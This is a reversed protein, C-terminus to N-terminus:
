CPKKERVRGLWALGGGLCMLLGGLWIWRILPKDYLRVQWTDASVAEGLAIYVDRFPTVDVAADTMPIQGVDYVRKEPYIRSISQGKQIMMTARVGHYNPGHLDALQELRVTYGSFEVAKGVSLLSDAQVGFGSSVAIGLMSVGIGIHAASMGWSAFSVNRLGSQKIKRWFRQLTAVIIWIALAIATWVMGQHSVFIMGLIGLLVSVLGAKWVQLWLTKADVKGWPMYMVLGMLFFLPFMLPVFVMNFYPAGVSIKGMGLADLILPYVTGLLVTFMGVVLFVNNLLLTMERSFFPISLTSAVRHSRCIYLLLSGGITVGLMILIAMGRSPDIAFAHVSTLVGSRVLFTGILSLSFVIVSLLLVWAVLAQRKVTVLLTHILATSVLWPMFSANEVPDWFWFGGWGLERYAWWSGLTIGLTLCCWALLVWPMVWKVLARDVRGAWLTAIAFAFPIACGVYGMYLMPPHFLFGLDQLLPNLDRGQVIGEQFVRIFPNSTFLIFILFAVSLAGLVVLVRARMDHTLSRSWRAVALTWTQLLCVWLVMSGEHGGWVACMKYYWPLLNSSNMRVYSLSFDNLLFCMDLCFFAIAGFIWQYVSYTYATKMWTPQDRWVGYSPVVVLLFGSCLSALLALIGLEAWM